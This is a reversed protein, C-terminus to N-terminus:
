PSFVFEEDIVIWCLAPGLLRSLATALVRSVQLTDIDVEKVVRDVDVRGISRM